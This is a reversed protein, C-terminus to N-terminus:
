CLRDTVCHWRQMSWNQNVIIETASSM